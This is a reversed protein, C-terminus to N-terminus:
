VCQQSQLSLGHESAKAAAAKPRLPLPSRAGTEGQQARAAECRMDLKPEAARPWLAWSSM